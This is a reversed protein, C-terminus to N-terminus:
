RLITVSATRRVSGLTATITAAANRRVTGTRVVFSASTAGAPITVSQPVTASASNSSLQVVTGGAPAPASISVALTATSGGRISTFGPSIATLAPPVALTGDIKMYFGIPPEEDLDFNFTGLGMGAGSEVFGTTLNRWFSGGVAMRHGALTGPNSGDARTLQVSWSGGSSRVGLINTQVLPAWDFQQAAPISYTFVGGGAPLNPITIARVLSGSYFRVVYNVPVSSVYNMTIANVRVTSAFSVQTELEDGTYYVIEGPIVSDVYLTTQNVVSTPTQARAAAGSFCFALVFAAMVVVRSVLSSQLM